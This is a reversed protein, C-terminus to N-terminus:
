SNLLQVCKKLSDRWHPITINYTSKIKSKNLVSYHPRKAPLPYDKAEIPNIQCTLGFLEVIEHAFDYWSCVGENAFHFIGPKFKGTNSYENVITIIADALDAAYTPTGVQDYIVNLENRESALRRITKVFNNGFSSYMWSTRLVISNEHALAAIEGDRKTKGYVSEPFTNEDEKYPTHSKGDFVFDTSVHIFKCNFSAAADALIKPGIHNVRKATETDEEAKDVATYAATNIIFEIKNNHMFESVETINTIDITEIDTFWFKYNSNIALKQLESGLQGNSGTVLINM